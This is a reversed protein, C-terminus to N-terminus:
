CSVELIYQKTGSGKIRLPYKGIALDKIGVESCGIANRDSPCLIQIDNMRLMSVRENETLKIVFFRMLVFPVAGTRGIWFFFFSFLFFAVLSM